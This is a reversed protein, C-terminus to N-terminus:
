VGVAVNARVYEAVAVGLRHHATTDLHVGDIDSVNVVQNADFFGCGMDRAVTQLHDTMGIQRTEAGQFVGALAGTERVLAPAILVIHQATGSAQAEAVLRKCSLAIELATVSFRNKLDNTGLMIILVDLPKHAHLASPLVAAGNRAGGEVPDDHVTTRGPLGDTIVEWDPSLMAGMANPWRDAYAFRGVDGLKHMPPTGHSNSDGFVLCVPM